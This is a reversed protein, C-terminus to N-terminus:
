STASPRTRRGWRFADLKREGDNIVVPILQTPALNYRPRELAGRIGILAFERALAEAPTQITARGCM